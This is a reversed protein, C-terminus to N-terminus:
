YHQNIMNNIAQITNSNKANSYGSASTISYITSDDFIKKLIYFKNNFLPTIDFPADRIVRALTQDLQSIWKRSSTSEAESSYNKM